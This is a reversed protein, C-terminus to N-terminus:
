NDRYLNQDIKQEVTTLPFFTFTLFLDEKPRLDRDVYYSKRYKVAATLCDNQYEYVFDYYETLSIKRNRRTKFLLSNYEDFNISSTNELINEDGLEGNKEIFNYKTVFNNITFTAEIANHEFTNFDNDVIFDYDLSFFKSFSNEISGFLNSTKRNTSSSVPIKDEEDDRLIGAFKVELFKDIEMRDEIKFDLGLTLSKGSEYSDGGIGLRDIGFISDAALLRSLNKHNKMDSPNFRFSIKPTIYNTNKENIKFLPYSSSAEYINLLETQLSSKYQTDNKAMVNLNKFYIGFNNVFGSNTFLDKTTYSLTNTINTKLNNTNSLNNRGDSNFNITGTDNSFFSTYYNYYPFAYQYRDNNLRQLNEYVTLGATLNYDDHDLNLEIGTTLNNNDKLDEEFRESTLLVNEFISLFNDNNVKEVFVKVKSNQHDKLDLDYDFKSFLHNISNRNNSSKSKYGKIYSFDAIFSSNEFEQRYENQFMYIRNDFITPKFTYDKDPSIVHFYPVNLSAGLINSQNLRPQLFGSRRKVSPDPHFFKPFYFVPIDYLHLFAKDYIIDKKLKDHTIKEANIKWPPCKDNKECSTFSAKNFVTKNNDGVSSVSSIRPDNKSEFEEIEEDTLNREGTFLNKHLLIETDKSVFSNDNFNIFANTFFFNDSKEKLYNTTVHVNEGKLLEKNYYFIFKSLKYLNDNNDTVISENSSSLEMLIRDLWVDKSEFKYNSQIIGNTNGSSFFRENNRYYTVDDSFILYKETIGEIKVKEYANLINLTKNFKFENADIITENSVAKSNGETFIIEQNMNYTIKQSYIDIEKIKDNIEVDGSAILINLKKNYEFKKKANIIVENDVAKSKGETFILEKNKYYTVKQSYIDIEKTKDTIKVNGTAILINLKKDYDFKNASIVVGDDTTATGNKKGIFRNGDELIEVETVNFNFQEGSLSHSSFFTLIILFFYSLFNNQM